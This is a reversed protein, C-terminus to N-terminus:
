SNPKICVLLKSKELDVEPWLDLESPLKIPKFRWKRHRLVYIEYGYRECLNTCISRTDVGEYNVASKLDTEILLVPAHIGMIREAGKLISSQSGEVDVKIVTPIINNTECYDDLTIIDIEASKFKMVKLSEQEHISPNVRLAFGRYMCPVSKETRSSVGVNEVRFDSKISPNLAFNRRAFEASRPNMEFGIVETFGCLKAAVLSVYGHLLGVDFLVSREQKALYDRLALLACVLGPEHLGAGEKTREIVWKASRRGFLIESEDGIENFRLAIRKKSEPKIHSKFKDIAELSTIFDKM